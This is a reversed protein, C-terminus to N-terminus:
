AFEERSWGTGDRKIAIFRFPFEAAAVKIRVRAAERWFGKTEHLEFLCERTLVGFDPTYWAGDALRLRMPEYRHWLVEGFSRLKWLYADYAAETKNMKRKRLQGRAFAGAENAPLKFPPAIDCGRTAAVRRQLEEFQEETWRMEM